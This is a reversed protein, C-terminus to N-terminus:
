QPAPEYEPGLRNQAAAGALVEFSTHGFRLQDGPSLSRTANKFSVGNLFSGNLSGLDEVYLAGAEVRLLAHQGSAFGDGVLVLDNDPACGIRYLAKDVAFRAGRATGGIGLLIATPQGPRPAAWSAGVLTASRRPPRPAQSVVPPATPVPAAVEEDRRAANGPPEGRRRALVLLALAVLVSVGIAPLPPIRQVFNVVIRLTARLPGEDPTNGGDPKSADPASPAAQLPAAVVAKLPRHAAAGGPRAYVLEAASSTRGDDAVIYDFSVLFAPVAGLGRVLGRLAEGVERASAAAVFRGGTAGAITSLSGSSDPALAGYAIADITIPNAAQALQGLAEASLASGEDKGDSVVVLHKGGEGEARLAALGGAVADFLRTKGAAASEPRLRALAPPLQSAQSTFPLLHTSGTGFSMLGVRFPLEATAGGTLAANVAARVEGLASPGISGSVDICLLLWAPVAGGPAARVQSPRLEVGDDLLLKLDEAALGASAAVTAVVHGPSLQRASVVDFEAARSPGASAALWAAALWGALRLWGM